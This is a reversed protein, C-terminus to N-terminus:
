FGGRGFLYNFGVKFMQVNSTRSTFVDGVLFPAGAPVTFSRDSLGIVDYEAKVTFNNIFAYEFGFGIMPGTRTRSINSALSVGTTLNTITFNSVGVEGGGLKIYALSRDNAVGLRAAFTSIWRDRSGSVAFPGLLGGILIGNGARNNNNSAVADVDGEIGLVFNNIQYNFGIQGGGMFRANSSRSFDLGTFADTVRREAWAAGVNGGIYFGTWSFPPPLPPPMAKVPLDAAQGSSSVGMFAVASTALLILKKM